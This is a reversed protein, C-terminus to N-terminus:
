PIRPCDADREVHGREAPVLPEDLLEALEIKRRRVWESDPAAAISISDSFLVDIKLDEHEIPSM